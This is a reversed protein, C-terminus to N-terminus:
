GAVAAEATMSSNYSLSYINCHLGQVIWM